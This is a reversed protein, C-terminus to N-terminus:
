SPKLANMFAQCQPHGCDVMDAIQITGNTNATTDMGALEAMIHTVCGDVVLKGHHESLNAERVVQERAARGQKFRDKLDPDSWLKM